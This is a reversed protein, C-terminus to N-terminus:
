ANGKLRKEIIKNYKEIRDEGVLTDVVQKTKSDIFLVVGSYRQAKYISELGLAKAINRSKIFTFPNSLDDKLFVIDPNQAYDSQLKEFVPEIFKCTECNNHYIDLIILKSNEAKNVINQINEKEGSSQINLSSCGCLLVILVFSLLFSQIKILQM